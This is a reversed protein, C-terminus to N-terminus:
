NTLRCARICLYTGLSKHSIPFVSHPDSNLNLSSQSMKPAEHELKSCVECPVMQTLEDVAANQENISLKSYGVIDTFLVHTIELQIEKKAETSMNRHLSAIALRLMENKGAEDLLYSQRCRQHNRIV